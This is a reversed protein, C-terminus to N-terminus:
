TSRPSALRARSAIAGATSRRCAPVEIAIAGSPVREGVGITPGNLFPAKWRAMCAPTGTTGTTMRLAPSSIHRLENQSRGPRM